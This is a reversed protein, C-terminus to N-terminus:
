HGAAALLANVVRLKDRLFGGAAHVIFANTADDYSADSKALDWLHSPNYPRTNLLCRELEHVGARFYATNNYSPALWTDIRPFGAGHAPWMGTLYYFARNEYKLPLTVTQRALTPRVRRVEAFFATAWPGRRVVFVGSNLNNSDATIALSHGAAAMAALAVGIDIDTRMVVADADVVLVFEHAALAEEALDLKSWAAPFPQNPLADPMLCTYNWRECFAQRNRALRARLRQAPNAELFSDAVTLVAVPASVVSAAASSQWPHPLGRCRHAFFWRSPLVDWVLVTVAVTTAALVLPLRLHRALMALVPASNYACPNHKTNTM